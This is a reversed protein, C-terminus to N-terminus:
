GGCLLPLLGSSLSASRLQWSASLALCCCATVAACRARDPDLLRALAPWPAASVDGATAAGLEETLRAGLKGGLGKIKGLPM